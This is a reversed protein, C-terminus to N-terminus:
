SQKEVNVKLEFNMDHVLGKEDTEDTWAALQGFLYKIPIEQKFIFKRKYKVEFVNSTKGRRYIITFKDNAYNEVVLDKALPNKGAENYYTAYLTNSSRDKSLHILPYNVGHRNTCPQGNTSLKLGIRWYDGAIPTVIFRCPRKKNLNVQQSAADDYGSAPKRFTITTSSPPPKRSIHLLIPQLFFAGIRVYISILLKPFLSLFNLIKLIFRSLEDSRDRVYYYLLMMFTLLCLLCVIMWLHTKTLVNGFIPISTIASEDAFILGLLGLIIMGIVFLVPSKQKLYNLYQEKM